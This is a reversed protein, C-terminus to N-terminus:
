FKIIALNRIKRLVYIIKGRKIWFFLKRIRSRYYRIRWLRCAMKWLVEDSMNSCNNTITRLGGTGAWEELTEPKKIRGQKVMDDFLASGPLLTFIKLNIVDPHYKKIFNETMKAEELTETPIGVMFSADSFIGTKRCIEISEAQTKVDIHKNLYDLVRQSGSEIGMQVSHCGAKKLAMMGEENNKIFDARGFIFFNIKGKYRKELFRAVDITRKKFTIFNEDMITFDTVGYKEIAEKFIEKTKETDYIRVCPLGNKGWMGVNYCFTCNGPCGRGTSIYFHGYNKLNVLSYDPFKIKNIDLFPRVPNKNINKLKGLKRPNKDFVDCFELFAEEGEGRMVYDVYPEKLFSDPEATAHVGGIIIVAKPMKKKILPGLHIIDYLIASTMSTFGIIDPNYKKLFELFDKDNANLNRDYIKVPHKHKIATALFVLSSPPSPKNRKDRRWHRETNYRDLNQKKTEILRELRIDRHPQVLLVKAM